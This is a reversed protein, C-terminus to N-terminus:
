ETPLNHVPLHYITSLPLYEHPNTQPVDLSGLSFVLTAAISPKLLEFQLYEWTQHGGQAVIKKTGNFSSSEERDGVLVKLM